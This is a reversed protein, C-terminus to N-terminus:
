SADIEQSLESLADIEGQKKLILQRLKDAEVQHRQINNAHIKFQDAMRNMEERKKSISEELKQKNM